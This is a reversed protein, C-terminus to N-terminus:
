GKYHTNDKKKLLKKKRNFYLQAFGRYFSIAVWELTRAQFIGHVASGQLNCDM